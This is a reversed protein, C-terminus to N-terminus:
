TQPWESPLVTHIHLHYPHLSSAFSHTFIVTETQKNEKKTTSPYLNENM